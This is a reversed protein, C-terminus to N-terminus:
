SGASDGNGSRMPSSAASTSTGRRSPSCPRSGRSRTAITPSPRPWRVRIPRRVEGLCLGHRRPYFRDPLPGPRHDNPLRPGHASAGRGARLLETGERYVMQKRAQRISPNSGGDRVRDGAAHGDDHDHRHGPVLAPYLAAPGASTKKAQLGVVAAGGALALLLVTLATVCSRSTGAPGASRANWCRPGAPWSRGTTSSGRWTTPWSKRRPM